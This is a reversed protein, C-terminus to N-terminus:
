KLASNGATVKAASDKVGSAASKTNTLLQNALQMSSGAQAIIQNLIESMGQAGNLVTLNDVGRFAGAAAEVIQPMQEAIQQGIVAEQNEALAEARAHLAEAEALGKAKLAAGEADGNARTASANAAGLKELESAQGEAASIRADRQANARVRTQTAEAEAQKVVTSQLEQETKFTQLKAVETEEIVVQKRATADALPGSQASEAQARDIQAKYEAQKIQTQRVAEAKLAEAEQERETAERDREAEAIRARMKVQATQPAGLAAIYGSPDHIESIQLSDIKLGMSQMEIDCAERVKRALLARDEILQEITLSGLIARLHGQFVERVNEGLAETGDLYRRAANTISAPDDNIKFLVVGSTGTAIKQLDVADVRLAASHQALSLTEWRQLVPLVVKGGGSVIRFADSGDGTTGKIGFGTIIGAESPGAVRWCTKFFVLLLVPLIFVIAIIAILLTPTM